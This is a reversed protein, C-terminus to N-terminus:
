RRPLILVAAEPDQVFGSIALLNQRIHQAIARTGANGVALWVVKPPPGYLLARQRFDDDKSVIVLGTGAAYRWINDDTAGLLDVGRPHQSGPVVDALLHVLRHSLNEDFLFRM